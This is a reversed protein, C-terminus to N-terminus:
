TLGWKKRIKSLRLGKSPFLLREPQGKQKVTEDHIVLVPLTEIPQALREALRAALRHEVDDVGIIAVKIEPPTRQSRNM